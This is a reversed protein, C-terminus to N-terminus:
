KDTHARLLFISYSILELPPAPRCSVCHRRCSKFNSIYAARFMWNRQESDKISKEIVSKWRLFRIKIDHHSLTFNLCVTFMLIILCLLMIHTNIPTPALHHHHHPPGREPSPAGTDGLLCNVLSPFNSSWVGLVKGGGRRRQGQEKHVQEWRWTCKKEWGTCLSGWVVHRACSTLSSSKM